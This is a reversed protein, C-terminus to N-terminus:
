NDLKVSVKAIQLTKDGKSALNLTMKSMFSPVNVNFIIEKWHLGVEDYYYGINTSKEMASLELRGYDYTDETIPSNTGTYGESYPHIKPFVRAIVKVQLNRTYEENSPISIEQKLYSGVELDICKTSGYPLVKDLPIYPTKTTDTSWNAIGEDFNTTNLLETGRSYMIPEENVRHTVKGERGIWRLAIDNLSFGGQKHLLLTVKDYEICRKLKEEDSIVGINNTMSLETWQYQPKPYQDYWTQHLDTGKATTTITEIGNGSVKTLTGVIANNNLPNCLLSNGKIQAVTYTTTGDSYKDRISVSSLSSSCTFATHKTYFDAIISPITDKYYVKIDDSGQLTLKLGKLDKSTTPLVVEVLAYDGFTVTENNQLKLYESIQKENTRKVDLADYYAKSEQKLAYHGILIEKFREAREINNRILLDNINDMSFSDRKRFIKMSKQPRPLRNLERNIGDSFLFTTRTAPHGSGWFPLYKTNNTLKTTTAIDIFRANHKNAMAKLGNVLRHDSKNNSFETCIIPELGLARTSTILKELNDYYYYHSRGRLYGDNENSLLVAYTGGYSDISLKSHFEPTRSIVRQNMEGYDDGSRAFNEFNWDSFISLNHIYAKGPLTYHCATFSDGIMVIKDANAINVVGGTGNDEELDELKPIDWTFDEPTNYVLDFPELKEEGNTVATLAIEITSPNPYCEEKRYPIYRIGISHFPKGKYTAPLKIGNHVWGLLEDTDITTVTHGESWFSDNQGLHTASNSGNIFTVDESTSYSVNSNSGYRPAFWIQQTNDLSVNDFGEKVFMGRMNITPPNEDNPVIGILELDEKTIICDIEPSYRDNSTSTHKITNDIGLLKQMKPNKTYRIDGKTSVKATINDPVVTEKSTPYLFRVANKYEGEVTWSSHYKKEHNDLRGGLQNSVSTILTNTNEEVKEIKNVLIELDDKSAVKDSMSVGYLHYPSINEDEIVTAGKTRVTFTQPEITESGGETLRWYIKYDTKYDELPLGITHKIKVNVQFYIWEGKEIPCSIKWLYTRDNKTESRIAEAGVRMNYITFSPGNVENVVLTDMRYDQPFKTLDEKNFWIGTTINIDNTDINKVTIPIGLYMIQNSGDERPVYNFNFNTIYKLDRENYITDNTNPIFSLSFRNTDKGVINGDGEYLPKCPNEKLEIEKELRAFDLIENKVLTDVYYKSVLTTEKSEGYLIHPLPVEGDLLTPTMMRIFQSTGMELYVGRFYTTTRYHPHTTELRITYCVWDGQRLESKVTYVSKHGNQNFERVNVYNEDLLQQATAGNTSLSIYGGYTQNDLNTMFDFRHNPSQNQCAELDLANIWIKFGYVKPKTEEYGVHYRFGIYSLKSNESYPYCNYRIYHSVLDKPYLENDNNEVWGSITDARGNIDMINNQSDVGELLNKHTRVYNETLYNKYEQTKGKALIEEYTLDNLKSPHVSGDSLKETTISNDEIVNNVPANGTIAQIVEDALNNLKIKNANSSTDLSSSPIKDTKNLKTEMRFILDEVKLDTVQNTAKKLPVNAGMGVYIERTDTCFALEGIPLSSPLEQKLGRKVRISDM